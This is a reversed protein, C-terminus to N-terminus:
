LAGRRRGMALAVLGCALLLATSPEPIVSAGNFVFLGSIDNGGTDEIPSGVTVDVGDNVVNATAIFVVNGLTHTGPGLPGSCGFACFATFANLQVGVSLLSSDAVVGGAAGLFTPPPTQNTSLWDMEDKFDADWELGLDYANVLPDAPDVTMTITGTLFDGPDAFITSTGTVGAGSTGTWTIDVSGANAMSAALMFLVIVSSLLGPSARVGLAGISLVSGSSSLLNRM